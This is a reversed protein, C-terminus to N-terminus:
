SVNVAKALGGPCLPIDISKGSNTCYDHEPDTGEAPVM